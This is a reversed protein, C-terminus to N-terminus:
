KNGLSGMTYLKGPAFRSSWEGLDASDAPRSFRPEGDVRQTLILHDLSLLDLLYPSHTTVIIQTRRAEIANRMEEVVLNLTRPDLGNEIEEIVLLPPPSPDRLVALIALVRLTGSSLAWGPVKFKGESLKLFVLRQIESTVSPQIDTAYPLVFRLVDLIGDFAARDQSQIHLLYEAINSGDPELRTTGGSRRRPLPDGMWRPQMDLFQWNDVFSALPPYSIPSGDELHYASQSQTPQTAAADVVVTEGRADRKATWNKGVKVLEAQIFVDDFSQSASIKVESSFRGMPLRGSLKVYVGNSLSDRKNPVHRMSHPVASNWINELGRWRNMAEDLGYRSVDQYAALAEILSSKGSGNDGIFVNLRSLRLVNSDRIAKFNRVRISRLISEKVM